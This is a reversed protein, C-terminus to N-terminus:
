HVCLWIRNLCLNQLAVIEFWIRNGQCARDHLAKWNQINSKYKERMKDIGKRDEMKCLEISDAEEARGSEIWVILAVVICLLHRSLTVGEVTKMIM